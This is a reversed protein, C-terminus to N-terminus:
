IQPILGHQESHDLIGAAFTLATPRVVTEGTGSCQRDGVDDLTSKLSDKLADM